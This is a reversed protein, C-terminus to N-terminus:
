FCVTFTFYIEGTVAFTVAIKVTVDFNVTQTVSITFTDITCRKNGVELFIIADNLIM